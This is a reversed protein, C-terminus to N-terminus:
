ALVELDMLFGSLFFFAEFCDFSNKKVEDNKLYFILQLVPDFQRSGTNEFFFTALSLQHSELKQYNGSFLSQRCSSM